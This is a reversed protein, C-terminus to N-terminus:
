PPRPLVLAKEYRITKTQFLLNIDRNYTVDILIEGRYDRVQFNEKMGRIENVNLLVDIKREAEPVSRISQAKHTGQISSLVSDVTSSEVYLPVYQIAIFVGYALVAVILLGSLASGKEYRHSVSM